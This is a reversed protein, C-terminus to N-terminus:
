QIPYQVAATYHSIAAVFSHLESKLFYGAVNQDYALEIDRQHGSSTLVFIISRRLRLDSRVEALFEHGNMGPMNLDIAVIQDELGRCNARERLHKLADSGNTVHVLEADVEQRRLARRFAEADIWDDEIHLIALTRNQM